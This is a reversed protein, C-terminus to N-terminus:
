AHTLNEGHRTGGIGRAPNRQQIDAGIQGAFRAGAGRQRARDLAGAAVGAKQHDGVVADVLAQDVVREGGRGRKEIPWQFPLRCQFDAIQVDAIQGVARLDNACRFHM